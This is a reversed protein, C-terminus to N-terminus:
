EIAESGEAHDDVRGPVMEALALAGFGAALTVVLYVIATDTAGVDALRNLEVAFSSMTTFGGLVGTSVFAWAVSTRMVRTSVLGILLCGLVNVTITNWPMSGPSAASLQTGVGWRATAGIVGGVAVAGATRVESRWAM